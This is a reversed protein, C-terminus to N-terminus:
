INPIKNFRIDCTKSILRFAYIQIKVYFIIIM